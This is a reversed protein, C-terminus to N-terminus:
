DAVTLRRRLWNLRTRISDADQAAPALALYAELDDIAEGPRGLHARLFGRDRLENASQPWVLLLREVTSMARAYDARRLYLHKLNLLLRGLVALDDVGDLQERRFLSPRGTCRAVLQRCDEETIVRGAHFADVHIVRGEYELRCVFHGPLNVGRAAFGAARAVHMLILGLSLPIGLRRELVENLYSNRPDEYRELNGRFGLEDFLLGRVSEYRAFANTSAGARRNTEAAIEDLEALSRDVDLSPYEEAAVCLVAEILGMEPGRDLQAALRERALRRHDRAAM